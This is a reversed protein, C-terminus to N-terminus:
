IHILSLGNVDGNNLLSLGNIFIFKDRNAGLPFRTESIHANGRVESHRDAKFADYTAAYLSDEIQVGFLSNERFYPDTLM